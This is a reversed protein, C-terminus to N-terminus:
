WRVAPMRKSLLQGNVRGVVDASISAWLIGPYTKHLVISDVLRTAVNVTPAADADTDKATKKCSSFPISILGISALIYLNTKKM